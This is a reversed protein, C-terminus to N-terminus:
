CSKCDKKLPFKVLIKGNEMGGRGGAGFILIEVACKVPGTMKYGFNTWFYSLNGTEQGIIANLRRPKPL